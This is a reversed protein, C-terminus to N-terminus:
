RAAEQRGLLGSPRVALVVAMLIFTTAGAAAPVYMQALEQLFGVLYAALVAGLVSGMGGIIIVAFLIIVIDAGMASNVSRMPAAMVGALAALAVGFAFVPIMWVNVNVGFAETLSPRETAARVVMGVKTKNLALWVGCTLAISAILVVFQYTPYELPGFNIRGELAAPKAYPQGVVGYNLRVLDQIILALGFTLLFNYVPDLPVLRRILTREVVVGGAAIVVPVVVLAAWFPTGFMDYLIVAGFAGLMYVAGHAFNAVRLMGYIVALGIALLAYFGGSVLGNLSAQLFTTM